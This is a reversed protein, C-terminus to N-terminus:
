VTRKTVMVKDRGRGEASDQATLWRNSLQLEYELSKFM